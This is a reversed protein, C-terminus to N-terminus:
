KQIHTMLLDKAQNIQTALFTSGGRDPHVKQILKRHTAIIDKRSSDPSLGLIKYADTITMEGTDSRKDYRQYTRGADREYGKSSNSTQGQGGGLGPIFGALLSRLSKIPQRMDILRPLLLLLVGGVALLPHLGRATFLLGMGTVIVPLMRDIFRAREAKPLRNLRNFFVILGVLVIALLAPHM